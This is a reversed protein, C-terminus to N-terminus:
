FIKTLSIYTSCLLFFYLYNLLIGKDNLKNLSNAFTKNSSAITTIVSQQHQESKSVSVGM